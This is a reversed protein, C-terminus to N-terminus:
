IGDLMERAIKKFEDSSLQVVQVPNDGGEIITRNLDPLVKKLLIDIARIHEPSLKVPRNNSDKLSLAFNQLREVLHNAAIRDRVEQQHYPRIRAAM